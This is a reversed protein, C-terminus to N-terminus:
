SGLLDGVSSPGEDGIGLLMALLALSARVDPHPVVGRVDYAQRFTPALIAPNIVETICGCREVHTDGHKLDLIPQVDEVFQAGIIATGDEDLRVRGYAIYSPNDPVDNMLFKAFISYCGLEADVERGDCHEKHELVAIVELESPLSYEMRSDNTLQITFNSM